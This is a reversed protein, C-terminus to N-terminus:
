STTSSGCRPPTSLSGLSGWWGSGSSRAAENIRGAHTPGERLQGGAPGRLRALHGLFTLGQQLSAKSRGAHRAAFRYAVEAVSTRPNRVLIELLIKFGSPKLDDLNVAARRFAFLGSLPDTMMALRRPFLTKALWTGWYSVLTRAKGSLGDAPSGTGAYRTGVVIDSDHRVAASALMAAAEPPHQLDADM